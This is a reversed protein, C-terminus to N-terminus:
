HTIEILCCGNAGAEHVLLWHYYYRLHLVFMSGFNVSCCMLDHDLKLGFSYLSTYAM